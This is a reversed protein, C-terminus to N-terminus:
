TKKRHAAFCKIITSRSMSKGTLKKQQDRVHAVASELKGFKILAFHVALAITQEKAQKIAYSAPPKGRRRPVLKLRYPFLAALAPDGDLLDAVIEHVSRPLQEIKRLVKAATASDGAMLARVFDESFIENESPNEDHEPLPTLGVDSSPKETKGGM